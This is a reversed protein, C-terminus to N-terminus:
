GTANGSRVSPQMHACLDAVTMSATAGEPLTARVEEGEITVIAMSGARLAKKRRPRRM